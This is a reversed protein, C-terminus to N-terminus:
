DARGGGGFMEGLRMAVGFDGSLDLRGELIANGVDLERALIRLADAVSLDAILAAGAAGGARSAAQGRAVTITWTSVIGSARRLDFRLDGTFGDAREPDFRAATRAFLSALARESGLTRELTRDGCRRVLAGFARAALGPARSADSAATM